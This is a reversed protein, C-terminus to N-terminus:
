HEQRKDYKKLKSPNYSIAIKSEIFSWDIEKDDLLEELVREKDKIKNATNLNSIFRYKKYYFEEFGAKVSLGFRKVKYITTEGLQSPLWKLASLTYKGDGKIYAKVNLPGNIYVGTNVDLISRLLIGGYINENNGITFDLGAPHDYWEGYKLQMDNGHTYLDKHVPNESKYDNYYFELEVIRFQRDGNSLVNRNMIESAIFEFKNSLDESGSYM